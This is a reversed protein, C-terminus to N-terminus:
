SMGGFFPNSDSFILLKEPTDSTEVLERLYQPVEESGRDRFAIRIQSGGSTLASSVEFLDGWVYWVGPVEQVWLENSCLFHAPKTRRKDSLVRSDQFSPASTPGRFVLAIPEWFKLFGVPNIVQYGRAWPQLM